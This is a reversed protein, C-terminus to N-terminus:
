RAGSRSAARAREAYCAFTPGASGACAHRVRREDDDEEDEEEQENDDDQDHEEEDDDVDDEDVEDDDLHDEGHDEVGHDSRRPADVIARDADEVGGLTSPILPGSRQVPEPWALGDVAGVAPLLGATGM